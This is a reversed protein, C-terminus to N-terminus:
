VKGLIYYQLAQSAEDKSIGFHKMLADCIERKDTVSKNRIWKKIYDFYNEM